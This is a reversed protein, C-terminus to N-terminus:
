KLKGLLWEIEGPLDDLTGNNHLVYDFDDERMGNDSTHANVPGIGARHVWVAKARSGIQRVAQMENPYRIGTLAVSTGEAMLRKAEAFVIDTWTNEGIINRGVETGLRQLLARVEPNKKSEDYGVTTHFDAYRVFGNEAAFQWTHVGEYGYLGIIPNLALLARELPESMYLKVWGHREVLIDAVTDKGSTAYGGLGWLRAKPWRSNYIRGELPDWEVYAGAKIDESALGVFRSVEEM